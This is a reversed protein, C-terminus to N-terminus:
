NLFGKSILEVPVQAVTVTECFCISIRILLPWVWVFSVRKVDDGANAFLYYTQPCMTTNPHPFAGVRYSTIIDRAAGLVSYM